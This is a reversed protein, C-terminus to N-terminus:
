AGLRLEWDCQRDVLEFKLGQFQKAAESSGAGRWWPTLLLVGSNDLTDDVHEFCYRKSFSTIHNM